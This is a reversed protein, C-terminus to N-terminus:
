FKILENRLKDFRELYKPGLEQLTKDFQKKIPQSFQSKIQLVWNKPENKLRFRIIELAFLATKYGKLDTTGNTASYIIESFNTKTIENIGLTKINIGKESMNIFFNKIAYDNIFLPIAAQALNNLGNNLERKFIKEQMPDFFDILYRRRMKLKGKIVKKRVIRIFKDLMILKINNCFLVVQSDVLISSAKEKESVPTMKIIISQALKKLKSSPNKCSVPNLVSKALFFAHAYIRQSNNLNTSPRTKKKNLNLRSQASIKIQKFPNKFDHTKTKKSKDIIRANKQSIPETRKVNTTPIILNLSLQNYSKTRSLNSNSFRISKSKNNKLPM